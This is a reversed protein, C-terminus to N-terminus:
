EVPKQARDPWLWVRVTEVVAKLREDSIRERYAAAMTNDVHGMIANVAVQDKSEGAVTEFTHRLTYFGRGRRKNIGLRKLLSEFRRSLANITVHRGATKKSPQVRVFRTGRVTLFCLDADANDGPTPRKALVGRMAEVTEPWLPIRRQIATKPRPFTLWGTELDVASQPLSAVDTNGFGCNAGLLVMARLVPDAANVIRRLEAAEFLREGAENRAQRLMKESPRDFARGYMVPQDVLGNDAAYKFVVRCRNIKSKLTVIGCNQALTKRFGEFDDPRLDDVRRDRGFQGILLECTEYYKAFSHASLEGADLRNRKTTLFANCLDRITVGGSTDVPPNRGESLYPWEQNLKDLAQRASAEVDDVPDVQTGRKHGWRGFYHLRGRIKKAWRGSAHAFLPFGEFPKAPRFQKTKSRKSHKNSHSVADVEM